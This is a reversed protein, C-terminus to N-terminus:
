GRFPKPPEFGRTEALKQSVKKSRYKKIEPYALSFAFLILALMRLISIVAYTQSPVGEM